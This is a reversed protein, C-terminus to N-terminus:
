MGLNKMMKAEQEKVQAKQKMVLDGLGKEVLDLLEKHEKGRREHKLIIREQEEIKKLLAKVSVDNKGSSRKRRKESKPSTVDPEQTTGEATPKGQGDSEGQGSAEQSSVKDKNDRKEKSTIEKSGQIEAVTSSEAVTPQQQDKQGKVHSEQSEGNGSVTQEGGQKAEAKQKGIRRVASRSGKKGSGATRSTEDGTKAPWKPRRGPNTAGAAKQKALKKALADAKETETANHNARRAATSSALQDAIPPRVTSAKISHKTSPSIEAAAQTTSGPQGDPPSEHGEKPVPISQTQPKQAFATLALAGLLTLVILAKAM